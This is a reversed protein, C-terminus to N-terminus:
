KIKVMILVPNDTEKLKLALKELEKKKEPYKPKSIKFEDSVIYQKLKLADIWGIITSNDSVTKPLIAPGADIDNLIGESGFLVKLNGTKSGIFSLGETRGNNDIYFEYYVNNGFEFLNVPTLFNKMVFLADNEERKAATLRLKGVEVILHPEFSKNKYSYITDSYIEKKLLEGNSRYFLNESTYVVNPVTRKWPYKNTFNKITKGTPDILIYSNEVIGMHNPFYCLIGDETLKFNIVGSLPSKFTRVIKGNKDFVLFKQQSGDAIYISEDKPDIDVDHAMTFENPGRGITGIKTVFSGDYRFMNIDASSQTLFYSKSFFVKRIQPILSQPSTELPVYSIETTGIESLKVTSKKPLNKLDFTYVQCEANKPIMCSALVLNFFLFRLSPHLISKM